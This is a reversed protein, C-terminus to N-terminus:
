DEIIETGEVVNGDADLVKIIRKPRSPVQARQKPPLSPLAIVTILAFIGFFFGLILWIFSNRHKRQSVIVTLFTFFFWIIFEVIEGWKKKKDKGKGYNMMFGFIMELIYYGINGM